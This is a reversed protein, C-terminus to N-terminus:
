SSTPCPFTMHVETGDDTSIVETSDTVAAIVPLGLGLGPSDSRPTMRTGTDRIVIRLEGGEALALVTVTGEDNPYAHRVVQAAAESVALKVDGVRDDPLGCQKAIEALKARITGLVAPAAPFTAQWRAVPV